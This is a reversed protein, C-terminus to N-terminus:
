VFSMGGLLCGCLDLVIMRCHPDLNKDSSLGKRGRSDAKWEGVERILV